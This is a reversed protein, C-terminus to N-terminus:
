PIYYITLSLIKVIIDILTLLFTCLSLSHSAPPTPLGQGGPIAAVVAASCLEVEQM